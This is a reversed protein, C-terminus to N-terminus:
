GGLVRGARGARRSPRGARRSARRRSRRRAGGKGGGGKEAEELAAEEEARAAALRAEEVRRAEAAEAEAAARAKAKEAEEEALRAALEAEEAEKKDKKRQKQKAKKSKKAGEIEAAVREAEEEEAILAEQMKIAQAEAFSVEVKSTFLHHLAYTEITRRGLEALRREDREAADGGFDEGEASEDDLDLLSSTSARELSALLDGCM